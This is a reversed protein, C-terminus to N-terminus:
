GRTKSESPKEQSPFEVEEVDGGNTEFRYGEIDSPNKRGAVTQRDPEM